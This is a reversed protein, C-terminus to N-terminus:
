EEMEWGSTDGSEFGDRFLLSAPVDAPFGYGELLAGDTCVTQAGGPAEASCFFLNPASSGIEDGFIRIANGVCLQKNDAVFAGNGGIHLQFINDQLEVSSQLFVFGGGLTVTGPFQGPPVEVTIIQVSIESFVRPGGSSDRFQEICNPSGLVLSPWGFLSQVVGGDIFEEGNTTQLRILLAGSKGLGDFTGAKELELSHGTNVNVVHVSQNFVDLCSIPEVSVLDGNNPITIELGDYHAETASVGVLEPPTLELSHFNYYEVAIATIDGGNDACVDQTIMHWGTGGAWHTQYGPTATAGFAVMPLLLFGCTVLTFRKM